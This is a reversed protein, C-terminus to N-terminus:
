EKTVRYVIDKKLVREIYFNGTYHLASSERKYACKLFKIAEALGISTDPYRINSTAHGYYVLLEFELKPLVPDPNLMPNVICTDCYNFWEEKEENCYKWYNGSITKKCKTCPLRISVSPTVKTITKKFQKEKIGYIVFPDKKCKNCIVHWIRTHPERYKWYLGQMTLLCEDCALNKKNMSGHPYFCPFAGYHSIEQNRVMDICKM